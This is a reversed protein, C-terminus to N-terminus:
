GGFHPWILQAFEGPAGSELMGQRLRPRVLEVDDHDRKPMGRLSLYSSDPSSPGPQLTWVMGARQPRMDAHAPVSAGHLVVRAGPRRHPSATVAHNVAAAVPVRPVARGQRHRRAPSSVPPSGPVHDVSTGAMRAFWELPGPRARDQLLTALAGVLPCATSGRQSSEM